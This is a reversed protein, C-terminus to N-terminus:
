NTKYQLMYSVYTQMIQFDKQKGKSWTFTLFAIYEIVPLITQKYVQVTDYVGLETRLRTDCGFLM